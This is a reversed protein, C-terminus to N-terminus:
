RGIYVWTWVWVYTYVWSTHAGYNIAEALFTDRTKTINIIIINHNYIAEIYVLDVLVVISVRTTKVHNVFICVHVCVCVCVGLVSM